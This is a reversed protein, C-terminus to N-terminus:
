PNERLLILGDKPPITVESILKGNNIRPQQRGRIKRFTEGLDIKQSRSTTNILVVGGEFDRRYVERSGQQLSIGDLWVTGESSGLGFTLGAARDRGSSSASMEFQQWDTTLNFEGYDLWNKWPSRQQQILANITRPKDAKAWFTITYDKRATM